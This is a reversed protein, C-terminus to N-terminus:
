IIELLKQLSTTNKDLFLFRNQIYIIMSNEIDKSHGLKSALLRYTDVLEKTAPTGTPLLTDKKGLELIDIPSVKLVDALRIIKDRRMNKIYGSEWKKVTSKSVGVAKGVDELTLNLAKRRDYINIPM